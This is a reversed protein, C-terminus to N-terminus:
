HSALVTVTSLYIVSIVWVQYDIHMSKFIHMNSLEMSSFSFLYALFFFVDLNILPLGPYCSIKPVQEWAQYGSNWEWTRCSPLFLESEWLSCAQARERAQASERERKRRLLYINLFKFLFSFFFFVNFNLTLFWKFFGFQNEFLKFSVFGIKAYSSLLYVLLLLNRCMWFSFSCLVSSNLLSSCYPHRGTQGDILTPLPFIYFVAIVM